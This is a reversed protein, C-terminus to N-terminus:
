RYSSSSADSPDRYRAPEQRKRALGALGILGLLGLWGWDSDNDNIDDNIPTEQRPVTTDPQTQASASFTSPLFSLSAGLLGAAVLKSLKPTDM